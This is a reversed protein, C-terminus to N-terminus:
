WRCWWLRRWGGMGIDGLVLVVEVEEVVEEVVVVEHRTSNVRLSVLKNTPDLDRVVSM